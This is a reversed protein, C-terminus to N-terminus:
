QPGTTSAKPRIPKKRQWISFREDEVLPSATKSIKYAPRRTLSSPPLPPPMKRLVATPRQVAAPPKLQFSPLKFFLPVRKSLGVDHLNAVDAAEQRELIPNNPYGSGRIGYPAACVAVAYFTCIVITPFSLIITSFRM